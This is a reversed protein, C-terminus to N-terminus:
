SIKITNHMRELEALNNETMAGLSVMVVYGDMYIFDQIYTITNEEITYDYKFTQATHGDIEYQSFDRMESVSDATPVLKDMYYEKIQEQTLPETDGELKGFMVIQNIDPQALRQAIIGGDDRPQFDFGVAMDMTVGEFTYPETQASQSSTMLGTLASCASMSLVAAILVFCIVLRKM